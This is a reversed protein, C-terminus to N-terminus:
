TQVRHIRLQSPAPEFRTRTQARALILIACPVIFSDILIGKYGEPGTRVLSPLNATFTFFGVICFMRWWDSKRRLAGDVSNNYLAAWVRGLLCAGVIVGIVGFNLYWGTAHHISYGQGETAAVGNAYHMYIDDPRDPWFFRPVASLLFSSISSGYTLPVEFQLAGYLSMHSGFAENSDALRTLSNAVEGLSVNSTIEDISLARAYDIFGVCALLVIGSTALQWTKPRTSNVSYFLGASFLALALENKNGLVLCFCFMFGLLTAYGILHRLRGAGALFRCRGGALLTALGISPPVLAIRNMVQHIRFLGLDDTSTRTVLYGSGGAALASALSERMIFFSAAAALAGILIIADHSIIVPNLNDTILKKPRIWFLVALGTILIFASYLALAYAYHEDLYVPFLKEYLYHYHKQSNGGLQDTVISWAGHLSWFYLATFGFLFGISKTRYWLIAMLVILVIVVATLSIYYLM